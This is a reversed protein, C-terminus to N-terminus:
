VAVKLGILSASARAFNAAIENEAIDIGVQRGTAKMIKAGGPLDRDRKWRKSRRASVEEGQLPVIREEGIEL